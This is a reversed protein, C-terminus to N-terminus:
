EVKDLLQWEIAEYSTPAAQLGTLRNNYVYEVAPYYLPVTYANEDITKFIGDWKEQKQTEDTTKLVDAIQDSLETDNWCVPVSGESQYFMGKIFGHPNWSDEYTRYIILEFDRTDWIADYYASSEVQNLEIGIGAKEYESQIFECVSKWASYEETQFTLTFTLPEGDKEVIGDGDMDEYGAQQLLEKAKELDYAYGKSNEETVYPTNSTMLGTAAKGAGDLLADVITEKDVAYNLAQRIKVDALKPNEYNEILFFALTGDVEFTDLSADSEVVSKNETPIDSLSIDAEGSQLAMCRSQGDGVQKLVVKDVIPADGYYYPNPVMVVEQEPEYSEIMWEGTGIMQVFEGDENLSNAGLMRYPRPYTLEILCPYAADEFVFEVTYDDLKNVELLPSSFGDKAWRDTNLIVSDANFDTGDSFKVDHRLYFTYTTGDDSIEWREALAPEIEGGEGYKVLPEYVMEYLRFDESSTIADALEPNLGDAVLATVTKEGASTQVATTDSTSETTTEKESSAGCGAAALIVTGALFLALMKKVNNRKM